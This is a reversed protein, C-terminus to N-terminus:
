ISHTVVFHKRTTKSILYTSIAQPCVPVKLTPKWRELGPWLFFVPLSILGILFTDKTVVLMYWGWWCLVAWLLRFCSSPASDFVYINLHLRFYFHQSSFTCTLWGSNVYNAVSLASLGQKTNHQTYKVLFINTFFHLYTLLKM